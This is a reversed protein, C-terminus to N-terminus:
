SIKFVDHTKEHSHKFSLGKVFTQLFGFVLDVTSPLFGARTSTISIGTNM